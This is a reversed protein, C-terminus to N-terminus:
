EPRILYPMAKAVQGYRIYKYARFGSKGLNYTLDDSMGYLQTLLTFHRLLQISAANMWSPL